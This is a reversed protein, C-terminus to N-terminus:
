STVKLVQKDLILTATAISGIISLGFAMKFDSNTLM